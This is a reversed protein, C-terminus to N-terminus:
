DYTVRIMNRVCLDAQEFFNTIIVIQKRYDNQVLGTQKVVELGFHEIHRSLFIYDILVAIFVSRGLIWHDM